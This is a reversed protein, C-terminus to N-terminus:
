LGDSKMVVYHDLVDPRMVCVDSIKNNLFTEHIQDTLDSGANSNANNEAVIGKCIRRLRVTDGPGMMEMRMGVRNLAIDEYCGLVVATRRGTTM